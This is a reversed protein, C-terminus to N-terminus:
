GRASQRVEQYQRCQTCNEDYHDYRKLDSMNIRLRRAATPRVAEATPGQVTAPVDFRTRPQRARDRSGGPVTNIQALAEPQWRDAEPRRTISRTALVGEKTGVLFTNSARNYGLFVGENGLAGMNGDPHHQPGKSPYRYLVAEAFGLLQQAFARGRVRHWATLGDEGKIMCNLLLCVHQMMWPVLPHDVPIYKNIREELCLKVTRFLGRILQVGVETGGNSQSDYTAPDEKAMQELDKCEVKALEIVRRVLAQIAAEGDAQLIIRTHGLWLIDQVVLDAVLGDEDAGKCPIVHGFIAKSKTCRVVLCKVLEGRSRAEEIAKEGEADRAMKLEERKKLGGKTIFFYDLGVIPITSGASRRHQFGRGRGWVCWKCWLRFPLHARRHDEIQKKTPRGPDRPEPPAEVEAEHGDQIEISEGEAVDEEAPAM